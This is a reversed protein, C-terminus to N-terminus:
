SGKPSSRNRSTSALDAPALPRLMTSAMRDAAPPCPPPEGIPSSMVTTTTLRTWSVARQPKGPFGSISAGLWRPAGAAAGRGPPSRPDRYAIRHRTPSVRERPRATVRGEYLARPDEPLGDRTPYRRRPFLSHRSHSRIAIGLRMAPTTQRRHRALGHRQLTCKHNVMWLPNSPMRLPMNRRARGHARNLSRTDRVRSVDPVFPGEALFRAPFM